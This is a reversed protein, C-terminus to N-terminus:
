GLYTTVETTILEARHKTEPVGGRISVIETGIIEDMIESVDTDTLDPNARPVTFGVAEKLDSLFTLTLKYMNAM